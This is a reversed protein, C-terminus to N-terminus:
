QWEEMVQALPQTSALYGRQSSFIVVEIRTEPKRYKLLDQSRQKIKDAIVQYVGEYGYREIIEGAAETTNCAQIEQLQPVPMGLLALNAILIETRADADKSHTSFIGASVKILKGLHGVMLVEEFALRQVEKLVYGVFNSMSVIQEAKLKLEKVAFDEGYNGPCLIIKKYGQQKKMELEVSIAQKWGEESMPTVIGSTGLISIGGIIGLRSNMTQQAIEVGKPAFVKVLAGQEPGIVKRVSEAIMKRPVPNIAAEGVPIQLGVETVRGVGEGGDIKIEPTDNRSIEVGILMGDTADADDGGDKEVFAVCSDAKLELSAIPITLMSENPLKIQVDEHQQDKVLYLAAATAAATACSGTTYGKRLKKGNYFVFEEM